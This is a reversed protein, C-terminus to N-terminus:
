DNQEVLLSGALRILARDNSFIGVVLM